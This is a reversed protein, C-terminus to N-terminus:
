VGLVIGRHQSYRLDYDLELKRSLNAGKRENFWRSFADFYDMKEGRDENNLTLTTTTQEIIFDLIKSPVNRFFFTVLGASYIAIGGALVPNNKSITAFTSALNTILEPLTSM